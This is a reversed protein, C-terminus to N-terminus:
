QVGRKLYMRPVASCRRSDYTCDREGSRVWHGDSGLARQATKAVLLQEVGGVDNRVRLRAALRSHLIPEREALQVVGGEIPLEDTDPRVVDDLDPLLDQIFLVPRHKQVPQFPDVAVLNKQRPRPFQM